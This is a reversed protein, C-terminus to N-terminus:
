WLLDCRAKHNEWTVNNFVALCELVCCHECKTYGLHLTHSCQATGKFPFKHMIKM